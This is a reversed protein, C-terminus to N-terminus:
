KDYSVLMLLISHFFIQSPFQLFHFIFKPLFFFLFLFFCLFPSGFQNLVGCWSYLEPKQHSGGDQRRRASVLRERNRDRQEKRRKYPSFQVIRVNSAVWYGYALKEESVTSVRACVYATNTGQRYKLDCKM